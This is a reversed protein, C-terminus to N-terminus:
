LKKFDAASKKIDTKRKNNLSQQKRLLTLEDEIAHIQDDINVYMARRRPEILDGQITNADTLKWCGTRRDFEAYGVELLWEQYCKSADNYGNEYGQAFSKDSARSLATAYQSITLAVFLVVAVIKLSYVLIKAKM